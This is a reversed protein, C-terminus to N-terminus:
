SVPRLRQIGLVSSVPFTALSVRDGQNGGLIRIKDGDRGAFIGVHGQANLVEPGPQPETGRKIVVIDLGILADDLAVPTGVRLWSRAAASGSRPLGLLFCLGNVFASCWSIEDHHPTPVTTLSLCWLIFGNDHEGPIEKLGLLQAAMKYLSTEMTM